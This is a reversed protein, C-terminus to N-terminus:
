PKPHRSLYDSLDRISQAAKSVEQLTDQLNQQVPADPQLTKRAADIATQADKLTARAEPSLASIEGDLRKILVNTNDLTTNINHLAKDAQQGM